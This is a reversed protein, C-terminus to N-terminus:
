QNNKWEEFGGTLSYVKKFAQGIFYQAASQSSIGHYCYCVLPKNRDTEKLFDSMNGENVSIAGPIHEERYSVEDRIDVITISRSNILSRLTANDIQEFDEFM